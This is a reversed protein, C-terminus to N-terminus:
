RIHSSARYDIDHMPHMTTFHLCIAPLLIDAINAIITLDKLVRMITNTPNLIHAVTSHDHVSAVHGIHITMAIISPTDNM